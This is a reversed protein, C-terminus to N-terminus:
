LDAVTVATTIFVDTPEPRVPGTLSEAEPRVRDQENRSEYSEQRVKVGNWEATLEAPKVKFGTRQCINYRNKTDQEGVGNGPDDVQFTSTAM